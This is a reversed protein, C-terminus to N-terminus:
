HYLSVKGRSYERTEVMKHSASATNLGGGWRLIQLSHNLVVSGSSTLQITIGVIKFYLCPLRTLVKLIRDSLIIQPRSYLVKLPRLKCIRTIKTNTGPLGKWALRTNTPSALLRGSFGYFVATFLKIACDGPSSVSHLAHLFQGHYLLIKPTYGHAM